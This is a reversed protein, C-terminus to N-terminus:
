LSSMFVNKNIEAKIKMSSLVLKLLMCAKCNSHVRSKKNKKRVCCRPIWQRTGFSAKMENAGM